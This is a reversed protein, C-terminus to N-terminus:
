FDGPITESGNRTGLARWVKLDIDDNITTTHGDGFAANVIGPHESRAAIIAHEFAVDPIYSNSGCDMGGWNPPAVHNYQTSDYGAFPWGNSWDDNPPWRGAGHFGGYGSDSYGECSRMLNDVRISAVNNGQGLGVISYKDPPEGVPKGSGKTRESFFVTNSLGDSFDRAKLGDESYTFAGNGGAPYGEASKKSPDYNGDGQSYGGFPTSGGFNCRYNNESIIRETNPDSPCIFLGSATAYAEYHMNVPKGNETMKKSQGKSFDIMDYVVTQEMFPLIRVHTSFNNFRLYDRGPSVPYSSSTAMEMGAATNEYDPKLRGAPFFGNASEYNVAALAMQKLNNGCQMRRAAERAAQVAPLLLAILIGIIAIVVLLEVLTFGVIQRNAPGSPRLTRGFANKARFRTAATPFRDTGYEIENKM